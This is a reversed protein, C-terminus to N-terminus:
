RWPQCNACSCDPDILAEGTTGQGTAYGLAALQEELEPTLNMQTGLGESPAALLWEVLRARLLRARESEREALNTSCAPDAELDYLELAHKRKWEELSWEKHDRLQLILHWKGLNIAASMEHAALLYRPAPDPTTVLDRLDQGPFGTATAGAAALLTHAVDYQRAPGDVVAGQPVSPGALLLPVHVSAPYLEAHDFWVGNDGFCEGHDATFAVLANQLRPWGLVEGLTADVYDVGARYEARAFEPDRLAALRPPPEIAEPYGLPTDPSFPDVDSDWYRGSFPAPPQYPSHADFVHLWIFLPEGDADDVWRALTQAAVGGPRQDYRPADLRDFGQGLGSESDQLHFASTAAYCRFGADRFREALTDAQATLPSHNNVIRTERPTLGTMLCVHSPNTVNTATFANLFRTGRAGLADLTPTRVLPGGVHDARHTDSTVLLVTPAETGPVSLTPEAVFAFGTGEADPHVLMRFEIDVEEGVWPSLDLEHEHWSSPASMRNELQHRDIHRDREPVIVHVAIQPVQDPRRLRHILALSYRLRAGEPVRVRATLPTDTSLTWGSRAETGIAMLAAGDSTPPTFSRLPLHALTLGTVAVLNTNGYLDVRIADFAERQGRAEPMACSIPIPGEESSPLEMWEGILVDKDGRCLVVRLREPATGFADAHVIVANFAGAELTEEFRVSLDEGGVVFAPLRNEPLRDESTGGRPVPLHEAKTTGTGSWRPDEPSPVYDAVQRAEEPPPEAIPRLDLRQVYGRGEIRRVPGDVGGGCAVPLVLALAALARLNM